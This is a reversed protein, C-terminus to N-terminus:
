DMFDRLSSRREVEREGHTTSVLKIVHHMVTM